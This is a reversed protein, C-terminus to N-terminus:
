KQAIDLLRPFALIPSRRGGGSILVTLIGETLLLDLIRRATPKPINSNVSFSSSRFIPREFLWDLTQLSYQTRTMVTMNKIEEYLAFIQNTKELNDEAQMRVGELFFRCWGTWDDDRSVALLREYYLDRRAEFYASIYFMPRHIIKRQWLFLPIMLRGIRGNGDLFPHLAEFEAHLLAAQILLDPVDEAHIYKEWVRMAEPLKAASVPVFTAEDLSCGPPGIWNPNRRYQGPTKDEGRVGSMLVRHAELIVRECLPLTELLTEAESMARGYNAIEVIDQHERDSEPRKGAEFLLVDGVSAQTGEIRSSLEAERRRLPSLLVSSNPAAALKGDYRALAATAPGILPVLDAMDLNQPPFRGEHYHVPPM